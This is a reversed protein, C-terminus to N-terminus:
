VEKLVMREAPIIRLIKDEWAKLLDTVSNFTAKTWYTSNKEDLLMFSGMSFIIRVLAPSERALDELVLFDGVGVNGYLSQSNLEIKM